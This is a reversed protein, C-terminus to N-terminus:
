ISNAKFSCRYVVSKRAISLVLPHRKGRASESAFGADFDM